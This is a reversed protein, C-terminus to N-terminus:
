PVAVGTIQESLQWLKAAAAMDQAHATPTAVRAKAFYKGTVGEVDPSTALYTQTQAGQEATLSLGFTRAIWLGASALPNKNNHAFGTDVFGPHLANSVVPANQAAMRRALENSFLINALKSQAYAGFANYGQKFEYDERIGQAAQHAESSVNVVRAKHAASGSAILLDLLLTTLLFYSIHNLAFTLEIGDPSKQADFYVAGANNVLVDLRQHKARFEAAARRIDSMSSLDATIADANGGAARLQALTEDVRAQNRGIITVHAGLKAINLATIKGVGNTAGTILVTKGQM